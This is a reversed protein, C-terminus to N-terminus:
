NHARRSVTMCAHACSCRRGGVNEAAGIKGPAPWWTHAAHMRRLHPLLLKEPVDTWVLDLLAEFASSYVFAVCGCVVGAALAIGLYTETTPTACTARLSSLHSESKARLSSGLRSLKASMHKGNPEDPPATDGNQPAGSSVPLQGNLLPESECGASM